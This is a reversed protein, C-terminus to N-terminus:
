DLLSADSFNLSPHEDGHCSRCLVEATPMKEIHWDIVREVWAAQEEWGIESLGPACAHIIEAM